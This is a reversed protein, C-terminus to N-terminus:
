WVDGEVEPEDVTEPAEDATAETEIPEDKFPNSDAKKPTPTANRISLDEDDMEIATRIEPTLSLWKSARRFVTKKAMEDYDTSWPGSNGSRSRSRIKDIEDKAMVETKETGDKFRVVVYYAYADGRAKKFDPKHKILIGRDYEFEDNDCVKDAHISSVLGSRMILECLGKYDILLTCEMIGRKRDEFPILHARRGDPELGLQSLDLLCKFFSEQTCDILKPTKTLATTAIRVFRDATLHEPLALAFQRKMEESNLIGKIGKPKSEALETKSM